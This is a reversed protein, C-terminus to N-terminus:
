AMKGSRPLLICGTQRMENLGLLAPIGSSEGETVPAVYRVQLGAAIRGTVALQHRIVQASGGVGSVLKPNKLVSWEVTSGTQKAKAAFRSAQQAGILNEVAGTDPLLTCRDSSSLARAHSPRIKSNPQKMNAAFTTEEGSMSETFVPMACEEDMNENMVFLTSETERTTQQSRRPPPAASISVSTGLLSMLDAPASVKSTSTSDRPAAVTTNPPMSVPSSLQHLHLHAQNMSDVM